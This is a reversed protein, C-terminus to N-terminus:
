DPAFCLLSSAILPQGVCAHSNNGAHEFGPLCVCEFSGEINRCKTTSSDCKNLIPSACEDIDKCTGPLGNGEFGPNCKCTYSGQSNICTANEDCMNVNSSCENVDVCAHSNNGAHEFGPLCVCEFSGEINRCKTTFSDCKNLIPSACEDIDKCTGPLGNGEFRPNCKCTYSGQSNICTANEDCM